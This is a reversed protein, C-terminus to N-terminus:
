NSYNTPSSIIGNSGYGTCNSHRIPNARRILNGAPINQFPVWTMLGGVLSAVVLGGTAYVMNMRGENSTAISRAGSYVDQPLKTIDTATDTITNVIDM